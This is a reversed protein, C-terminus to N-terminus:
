SRYRQARLGALESSRMGTDLFIRIIATDRRDDFSRGSMSGLLRSLEAEDLVAVQEEPIAPPKLGSMPSTTILEEDVAWRYLQQLSRFRVAATTPRHQELQLAIFDQIDGRTLTLLDRDDAHESLLRASQLYSSITKPSRNRARLSRVFSRLVLDNNGSYPGSM